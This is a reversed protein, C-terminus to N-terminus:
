ATCLLVLGLSNVDRSAGRTDVFCLHVYPFCFYSSSFHMVFDHPVPPLHNFNCSRPQPNMWTMNNILIFFLVFYFLFEHCAGTMSKCGVDCASYLQMSGSIMRFCNGIWFLPVQSATAVWNREAIELKYGKHYRQHLYPQNYVATKFTASTQCSLAVKSCLDCFWAIKFSCSHLCPQLM